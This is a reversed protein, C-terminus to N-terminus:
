FKWRLGISPLIGPDTVIEKGAAVLENARNTVNTLAAFLEVRGVQYSAYMNLTFNTTFRLSNEEGLYYEFTPPNFASEESFILIERPPTYPYGTHLQCESGAVFKGTFHYNVEATLRHPAWLDYPTTVGYNTVQARSYAYSLYLKMRTNLLRDFDLAVSFGSYHATSSSEMTFCDPNLTRYRYPGNWIYLWYSDFLPLLLPLDSIRKDFASIRAPGYTATVATLTTKTWTLNSLNKRILPQQPELINAIPSEAFTGYFLELTGRESISLKVSHRSVPALPHRLESFREIRVGNELVLRGFRFTTGLYVDDTHGPMNEHLEPCYRNLANQYIYPNSTNAFPPQFPWSYQSLDAQRRLARDTGAGAKVQVFRTNVSVDIQGLLNRYQESLEVRLPFHEADYDPYASYEKRGDRMAASALLMVQGYSGHLRFGIFNESTKEDIGEGLKGGIVSLTDFSMRDRVYYQDLIAQWRDSLRLGGSFYLDRFDIPPVSSRQGSLDVVDLVNNLISQRVAGLAFFRRSGIEYSGNYFHIESVVSAPLIALIGYHEPDASIPIGNLCYRPNTGEIRIQSSHNSGVRALQPYRLAAIPNSPVLTRRAALEVENSPLKMESTAPVPDSTVKIGAVEVPLPECVIDLLLTDSGPALIREQVKYGVSSVRIVISQGTDRLARLRYTGDPDTATGSIVTEGSVLVVSAGSIPNGSPDTIRGSMEVSTRSDSAGCFARMSALLMVCLLLLKWSRRYLLREGKAAWPLDSTQYFMRLERAFTLRHHLRM